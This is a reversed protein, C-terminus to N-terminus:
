IQELGVLLCEFHLTGSEGLSGEGEFRGGKVYLILSSIRPSLSTSDGSFSTRLLGGKRSFEGAKKEGQGFSMGEGEGSTKM